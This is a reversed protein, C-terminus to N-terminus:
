VDGQAVGRSAMALKRMKLRNDTSRQDSLALRANKSDTTLLFSPVSCYVFTYHFM